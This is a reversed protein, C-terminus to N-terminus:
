YSYRIGVCDQLLSFSAPVLNEEPRRKRVPSAASALKNKLDGKKAVISNLTSPSLGLCKAIGIWKETPNKEV